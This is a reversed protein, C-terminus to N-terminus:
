VRYTEILHMDREILHPDHVRPLKLPQLLVNRKNEDAMAVIAGHGAEVFRAAFQHRNIFGVM